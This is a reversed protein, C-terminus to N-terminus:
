GIIRGWGKRGESKRVNQAFRGTENEKVKLYIGPSRDVTGPMMENNDGKDNVSLPSQRTLLPLPCQSPVWVRSQPM